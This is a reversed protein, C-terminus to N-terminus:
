IEYMWLRQACWKGGTGRVGRARGINRASRAARLDVLGVDQPATEGGDVHGSSVRPGSDNM